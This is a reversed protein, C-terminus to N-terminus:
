GTWTGDPDFRRLVALEEASPEPTTGVPGAVRLNWGTQGRVDDVTVGPHVSELLMEGSGADFGLVALSTIVRSPGGRVLGVEDRWPGGTGYGPSTLYAVREPFRRREHQMIVVTRRSLAAIDAAGGSGPLRVRRGGEEVWTTNLNGFRDVQAGGLFGVDVRGGQLHSMVELLTTCMVAGAINPPDGMTILAGAPPTDRIVGNEFLGVARPAHTAKAVAFGLLPLRMGVFVVEEDRIERAAAVVMIQRPSARGSPEAHRQPRIDRSAPHARGTM